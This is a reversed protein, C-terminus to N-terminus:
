KKRRMIIDALMLLCGTLIVISIITKACEM